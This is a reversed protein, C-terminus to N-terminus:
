RRAPGTAEVPVAATKAHEEAYKKWPGPDSGLDKGSVIRLAELSALRVAPDSHEMGDVLTVPLRPDPSKLEAISEIAAIQCDRDSDTAMIRGLVTWDEPQGAKGLARCAASRVVPEQDSVTRLLIARGEPRRLEGLTHCIEARSAVPEKATALRAALIKAAEAKQEDNDYSRPSGLKAYAQYRINPDPSEQVKRLMSTATTGVTSKCGGALAALTFSGIALLRIKRSAGDMLTFGRAADKRSM